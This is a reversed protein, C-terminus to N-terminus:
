WRSFTMRRSAIWWNCQRRSQKRWSRARWRVPNDLVVALNLPTRRAKRREAIASLDIKVVVEQGRMVVKREPVLELDPNRRCFIRTAIIGSWHWTHIKKM